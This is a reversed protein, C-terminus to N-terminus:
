SCPARNRFWVRQCQGGGIDDRSNSSLAAHAVGQVEGRRGTQGLIRGRIVGRKSLARLLRGTSLTVRNRSFVVFIDRVRTRRRSSQICARPIRSPRGFSPGFAVINSRDAVRQQLELQTVFMLCDIRALKKSRQRGAGPGARRGYFLRLTM